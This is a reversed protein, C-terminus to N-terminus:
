QYEIFYYLNPLIQLKIIKSYIYFSLPIQGMWFMKNSLLVLNILSFIYM